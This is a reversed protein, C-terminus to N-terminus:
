EIRVLSQMISPSFIYEMLDPQDMNIEVLKWSKDATQIAMMAKQAIIQFDHKGENWKVRQQGYTNRFQEDIAQIAKPSDYIGDKDIQVTLDAVYEVRVFTEDGDVVPVSTSTIRTNSMKLSMGDAEMGLMLDVLDQKAVRTFLKPYLLDFAQDWEKNNSHQIFADLSSQIDPNIFAQGKLQFSFLVVSIIFFIKRTNM